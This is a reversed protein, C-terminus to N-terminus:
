PQEQTLHHEVLDLAQQEAPTLPPGHRSEDDTPDPYPIATQRGADSRAQQQYYRTYTCAIVTAAFAPIAALIAGLAITIATLTLALLAGLTCIRAATRPTM